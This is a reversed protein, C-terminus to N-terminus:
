RGLREDGQGRYVKTYGDPGFVTLRAGTPLMQPLMRDCGHPRRACPKQNVYLSADRRGTMRMYAAAQAEVHHYNFPVFGQERPLRGGNLEKFRRMIEGGGHGSSLQVDPGGRVDLRARTRDGERFDPVTRAKDANFPAPIQDRPVGRREYWRARYREPTFRRRTYADGGLPRAKYRQAEIADERTVHEGYWRARAPEDGERPRDIRM